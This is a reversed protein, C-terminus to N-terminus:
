DNEVFGSGSPATTARRAPAAGIVVAGGSAELTVPTSITATEETTGAEFTITGASMVGNLANELTYYPKPVTGLQPGNYDFDASVSSLLSVGDTEIIKVLRNSFDVYYLEGSSDEGFSGIAASTPNLQATHETFESLTSGDYVFSWIQRTAYEAFFYRGTHMPFSGGRYVVGGTVSASGSHVYEHIPLTTTARADDCDGCEFDASGELLDWGYNEGGSSAAAQFDIEEWTNQGVDGIYLDKTRADFSFRWPNRLGYVWIEDVNPGGGDAFPNGPAATSPGADVDLRLISGLPTTLDQANQSPDGGGGGDGLAVYLYNNADGPRFGIMGGNHNVFPQATSFYTTGSAGDAVDPNGSVSYREVVTDGSTDTYYVFFFGNSSYDPHFALALLGREGNTTIRASIDLFATGLVTGSPIQVIKIRGTKEVVFVRATDGPAATVHLPLTFGTAIVQTSLAASANEALGCLTAAIVLTVLTTRHFKAPRPTRM